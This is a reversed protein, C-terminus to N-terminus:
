ARPTPPIAPSWTSTRGARCAARAVDRSMARFPLGRESLLKVAERGISGTAGVVLIM